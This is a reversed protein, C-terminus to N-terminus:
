RLKRHPNKELHDVVITELPAKRAELKLGLQEQLATILDPSPDASDESKSYRWPLTSSAKSGKDHRSCATELRQALFDALKVIPM